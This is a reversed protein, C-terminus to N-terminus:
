KKSAEADERILLMEAHIQSLTLSDVQQPTWGYVKAFTHYILQRITTYDETKTESPKM